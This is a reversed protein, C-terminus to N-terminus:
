VKEFVECHCKDGEKAIGKKIKQVWDKCPCFIKGDACCPCPYNGKETQTRIMHYAILDFEPNEFNLKCFLKKAVKPLYIILDRKM